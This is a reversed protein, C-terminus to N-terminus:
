TMEPLIITNMQSTPCHFLVAQQVNAYCAVEEKGSQGACFEDQLGQKGKENSYM